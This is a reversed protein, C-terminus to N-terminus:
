TPLPEDTAIIVVAGKRAKDRLASFVELRQDESLPAFPDVALFINVDSQLAEALMEMQRRRPDKVNEFDSVSPIYAVLKRLFTVSREDLPMGDFTVFGEKHPCFGLLVNIIFEGEHRPFCRLEGDHFIQSYGTLEGKGKKRASVDKFEIM